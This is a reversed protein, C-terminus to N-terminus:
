IYCNGDTFPAFAGREEEGLILEDWLREIETRANAIFISMSERKLELMREHESEYQSLFVTLHSVVPIFVIMGRVALVNAETSGRNAEVFADM